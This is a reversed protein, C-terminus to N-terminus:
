HLALAVPRSSAPRSAAPRRAPVGLASERVIYGSGWVTTVLMGVGAAALRKRLRHMLVDISKVSPEDLEGYLADMLGQRTVLQNKRLLLLSLARYETPSLRLDQGHATADRSDMHLVVPGVRLMSQAFGGARRVVARLRASLEAGDVPLTIVDDAGLDLLRARERAALQRAVAVVPLRCGAARLDRLVAAGAAAGATADIVAADFGYHRALHLAEEAETAHDLTFHQAHLLAVVDSTRPSNMATLLLRM